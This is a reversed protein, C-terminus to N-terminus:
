VTKRHAVAAVAVALHAVQAAQALPAALPPHAVAEALQAWPCETATLALALEPAVVKHALLM